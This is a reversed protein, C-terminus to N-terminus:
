EDCISGHFHQALVFAGADKGETAESMDPARAQDKQDRDYLLDHADVQTRYNHFHWALIEDGAIIDRDLDVGYQVKM